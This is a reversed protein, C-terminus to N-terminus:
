GDGGGPMNGGRDQPQTEARGGGSGGPGATPDVGWGTGNSGTPDLLPQPTPLNLAATVSARPNSSGGGPGANPDSGRSPGSPDLGKGQETQVFDKASAM